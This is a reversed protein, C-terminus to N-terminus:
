TKFDKNPESETTVLVETVVKEEKKSFVFYSHLYIGMFVLIGGFIYNITFPKAFLMFSLIVTLAKRLGTVIQATLADTEKILLYIM